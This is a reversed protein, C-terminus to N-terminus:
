GLRSAGGNVSVVQGTVYGMDLAVACVVAAVDDSTGLRRLPIGRLRREIQATSLAAEVLPTLTTGPSVVNVRIQAQGLEAALAKSFAAVGGKAASYAAERPVGIRAADSSVNVISGGARLLPLFFHCVHLVGLLNVEIQRRYTEITQDRFAENVVMGANNILLSVEGHRASITEAAAGVASEDTVDCTIHEVGAIVDDAAPAALDLSVVLHGARHLRRAISQGIGQSAGTVVAVPQPTNM